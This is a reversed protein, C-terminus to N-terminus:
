SNEEYWQQIKAFDEPYDERHLRVGCGDHHFDCHYHVGSVEFACTADEGRKEKPCISPVPFVKLKRKERELARTTLVSKKM